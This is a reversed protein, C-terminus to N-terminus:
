RDTCRQEDPEEPNRKGEIAHDVAEHAGVRAAQSGEDEGSGDIEPAYRMMCEKEVGGM